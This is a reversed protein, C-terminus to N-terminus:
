LTKSIHHHAYILLFIPFSCLLIKLYYNICHFLFNLVDTRLYQVYKRM